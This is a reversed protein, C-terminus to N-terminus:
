PASRDTPKMATFLGHGFYHFLRLAGPPAALTSLVWRRATADTLITWPLSLWARVMEGADIQDLESKWQQVPSMKRISATPAEFGAQRLLTDWGGDANLFRAGMIRGMYRELSAPPPVLWVCENIGVRGGEALVRCYERLASLPAPIFANVSESFVVDFRGEDFPLRTADAEQFIVTETLEMKRARQTARDVMAPNIDIGALHCGFDRALTCASFGNGCGIVLVRSSSDISCLSALERTAAGGGIHKTIGWGAQLDFYVSRAESSEAEM